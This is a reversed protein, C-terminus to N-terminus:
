VTNMFRTQKGKYIRTVSRSFLKRYTKECALRLHTNDLKNPSIEYIDVTGGLAM